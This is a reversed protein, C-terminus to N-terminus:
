YAASAVVLGVRGCAVEVIAVVMVVSSRLPEEVTLTLTAIKAIIQNAQISRLRNMSEASRGADGQAKLMKVRAKVDLLLAM